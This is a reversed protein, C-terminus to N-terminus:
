TRAPLLRRIAEATAEPAERPVFHGAGDLVRREYPGTFLHDKGETTAPTNDADERGHVVLAPM